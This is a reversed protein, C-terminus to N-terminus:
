QDHRRALICQMSAERFFKQVGEPTRMDRPTELYGDLARELDQVEQQQGMHRAVDRFEGEFEIVRVVTNNQMFVLTSLLKGIVSGDEGRITHDPRGSNQFLDAVAQETGPKVKWTLAYFQSM